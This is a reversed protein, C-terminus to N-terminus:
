DICLTMLVMEMLRPRVLQHMRLIWVFIRLWTKNLFTSMKLICLDLVLLRRMAGRLPIFTLKLPLGNLYGLEAEGVEHDVSEFLKDCM